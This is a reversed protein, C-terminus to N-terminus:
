ITINKEEEKIRKLYYELFNNAVVEFHRWNTGELVKREEIRQPLKKGKFEYDMRLSNFYKDGADPKLKEFDLEKVIEIFIREYPKFKLIALMIDVSMTFKERIAKATRFSERENLIYLLRKIEKRMREGGALLEEKDTENIIDQFRFRYASDYEFFMCFIDRILLLGKKVFKDRQKKAIETLVKHLERMSVCYREPKLFDNELRWRVVRDFYDLIINKIFYCVIIVGIIKPKSLGKLVEFLKKVINKVIHLNEVSNADPIGKYPYKYNYLYVLIGGEKPREEREEVGCNSVGPGDVDYMIKPNVLKKEAIIGQISSSIM